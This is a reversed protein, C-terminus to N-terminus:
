CRSNFAIFICTSRLKQIAKEIFHIRWMNPMAIVVTAGMPPGM